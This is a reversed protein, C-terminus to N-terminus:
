SPNKLVTEGQWGGYWATAVAEVPGLKTHSGTTIVSDLRAVGGTTKMGGLLAISGDQDCYYDIVRKGFYSHAGQAALCRMGTDLQVAWPYAPSYVAADPSRPLKKGTNLRIVHDSWPDLLCLVSTAPASGSQVAWCPDVVYNGFGCRYVPGTLVDSGPECSGRHTSTVVDTSLQRHQSTVPAAFVLKTPPSAAAAVGAAIALLAVGTGALLLWRKFTGSGM